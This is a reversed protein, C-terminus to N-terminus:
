KEKVGRSRGFRGFAEIESMNKPINHISITGDIPDINFTDICHYAIWRRPFHSNKHAEKGTKGSGWCNNDGIVVVKRGETAELSKLEAVSKLPFLGKTVTHSM